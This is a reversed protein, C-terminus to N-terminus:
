KTAITRSPRPSGPIGDDWEELLNRVITKIVRSQKECNKIPLFPSPQYSTYGFIEKM